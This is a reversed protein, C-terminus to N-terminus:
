AKKWTHLCTLCKIFLCSGEDASRTQLQLESCRRDGCKHCKYLDTTTMNNKKMERLENKRIIDKWNQLNLEQPSLFALGQPDIEGIMVRHRLDPNKLNWSLNNVSDMYIASLTIDELNNITSYVLTFEFVSAEIKTAIDANDVVEMLKGIATARDVVSNLYVKKVLDLKKGIDTMFELEGAFHVYKNEEEQFKMYFEDFDEIKSM